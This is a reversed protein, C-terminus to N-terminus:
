QRGNIVSAQTPTLSGRIRGGPVLESDYRERRMIVSCTAQHQASLPQNAKANEGRPKPLSVLEEVHISHAHLSM